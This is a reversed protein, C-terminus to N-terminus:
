ATWETRNAHDGTFHQGDHGEVGECRTPSPPQPASSFLTSECREPDPWRAERLGRWAADAQDYANRQGRAFDRRRAMEDALRGCLDQNVPVDCRALEAAMASTLAGLEQDTLTLFPRAEIIQCLARASASV